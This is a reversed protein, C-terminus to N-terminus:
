YIRFVWVVAIALDNYCAAKLSGIFDFILMFKQGKQRWRPLAPIVSVVRVEAGLQVTSPILGMKTLCVSGASSSGLGGVAVIFGFVGESTSTSGM